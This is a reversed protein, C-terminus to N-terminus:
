LSKTSSPQTNETKEEEQKAKGRFLSSAKRFLGRLKDKNIELSGVYLSKKEDDTDLEKYVTPKSLTEPDYTDTTNKVSAINTNALATNAAPTGQIYRTDNVSETKNLAVAEERRLAPAPILVTNETQVPNVIVAAQVPLVNNTSNPQVAQTGQTSQANVAISNAQVTEPVPNTQKGPQKNGAQNKPSVPQNDQKALVPNNSLSNPVLTWVLVVLGILAAAVAIQQWRLYFIPKEKEEKRYLLNKDPFVITEPELVTKQLGTFADQLAPHQLVFTETAAKQTSSLENDVYLLFHEEYNALSIENDANRYLSEKHGFFVPEEALRTQLLIDLEEALGPNARAFQDVAQMEAPSLEGDVYLLFFEEYNHQGINM